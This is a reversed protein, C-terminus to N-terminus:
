LCLSVRGWSLVLSGFDNLYKVRLSWVVHSAGLARSAPRAQGRAAVPPVADETVDRIQFRTTKNPFFGKLGM